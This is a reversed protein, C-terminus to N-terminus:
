RPWFIILLAVTLALLASISQWFLLPNREMLPARARHLFDQHPHRLDYVFESLEQYRKHPQPHLARKLVDDIWAPLERNEALVSSYSLRSQAARTRTRGVEVGYPLRGTLMQYTIVALSFLDSSASGHDGIFYEPATYQLTGLIEAEAVVPRMEMIGAVQTAGFDIIKVTGSTDIMVNAPRLDQHLMELRHFAQLGLAIQEVIRRVTELEPRPHDIMWQTLTQGEVWESVTYLSHRKRTQAAAKVVHPSDIRRAVWEELLFRELYASNHRMDISPTKLAVHQGSHNDRALYVHSRSSAHLQRVVSFDDIVMRAELMPPFPLETLQQFLESADQQGPLADIRVLQITLNDDSGQDYAEALIQQAAEELNAGYQEILATMREPAVHEHIGDTTLVFVDGPEAALTRYDIEVHSDAGLARSLHSQERTIWVRHDNTLQEMSGSRLHHIRADGIHFLHATTSKIVLASLTCVYGKERDYRYQSQRTQAHLWSNTAMLVRQASKKVSWAYSTCYYDELFGTVAAQSAIQSVQSSSIGDAIAIAIGKAGLQPQNPIRLGHFDQNLEKRGKDSCYGTSVTLQDTM